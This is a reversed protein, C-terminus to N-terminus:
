ELRNFSFVMLPVSLFAPILMVNFYLALNLLYYYWPEVGFINPGRGEGAFVNYFVINFPVVVFRRYAISEFGVIAVQYTLVMVHDVKGSLTFCHARCQNICPSIALDTGM